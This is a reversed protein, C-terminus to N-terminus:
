DVNLSRFSGPMGLHQENFNGSPRLAENTKANAMEKFHKLNEEKKFVEVWKDHLKALPLDHGGLDSTLIEKPVAEQISELTKHVYIRDAIKKPFVRKLLSVLINVNNAETVIHFGKVRLQFGQLVITVIQHLDSINLASVAEIFNLGRYDCIFIVGDCYDRCKLYEWVMAGFKFYVFYISSNLENSPGMIKSMIIRYNDKTLKPLLAISFKNKFKEFEDFNFEFYKPMLTRMTCIKDIQIKAREVSGKVLIISRELYERSFDKKTFHDQKKIWNDLVDIAADMEGPKEYNYQRRLYVLTNPNFELLPDEKICNM